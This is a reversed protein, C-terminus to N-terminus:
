VDQHARLAEAIQDGIRYVPTFASLPDQFVM